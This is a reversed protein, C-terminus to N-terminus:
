LGRYVETVVVWLLFHSLHLESTRIIPSSGILGKKLLSTMVKDITKIDMTMKLSLHDATIFPNGQNILFYMVLFMIPQM